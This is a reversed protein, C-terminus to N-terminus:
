SLRESPSDTETSPNITDATSLLRFMDDLFERDALSMSRDKADSFIQDIRKVVDQRDAM